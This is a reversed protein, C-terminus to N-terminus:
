EAGSTEVGGQIYDVAIGSVKNSTSAAEMDMPFLVTLTSNDAWKVRLRDAAWDKPIASESTTLIASFVSVASTFDDSSSLWVRADVKGIKECYRIVSEAHIKSNPSPYILQSLVECHDYKDALSTAYFVYVAYAAM